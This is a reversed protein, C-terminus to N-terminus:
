SRPSRRPMAFFIAAVVLHLAVYSIGAVMPTGEPLAMRWLGPEGKGGVLWDALNWAAHLAIPMALGRSRVAAAGYVLGAPLVGAAYSVPFGYAVHALAFAVAVILQAPWRGLRADLTRLAYGRFALEEACSLALFTAIALLANGGTREFGIRGAFISVVGLQVAFMGLGIAGGVLFRPVSGRDLALGIDGARRRELRLFLLTLLLMGVSCATAWSLQGLGLTGFAYFVALYGAWFIFVSLLTGHFRSRFNETM